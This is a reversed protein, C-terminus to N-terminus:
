FSDRRSMGCLSAVHDASLKPNELHTDLVLQLADLVSEPAANTPQRPDISTPLNKLSPKLLLWECPFSLGSGRTNTTAVRTGYFDDPLVGPDCVEVIVKGGDWDKGVASILIQLIYAISFADNHRPTRHGNSVRIEHFSSRAGRTELKFIASSADRYADISFRLLFDGVSQSTKAAGILPSWQFPNLQLGLHAGIYPDDNAEALDEVIDYMTAAPVFMDPNEFARSNIGFPQLISEVDIGAELAADLFPRALVLRVVPLEKYTTSGTSMTGPRKSQSRYLTAYLHGLYSLDPWRLRVFQSCHGHTMM